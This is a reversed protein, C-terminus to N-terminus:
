SRSVENVGKTIQMQIQIVEILRSFLERAFATWERPHPEIWSDSADPIEAELIESQQVVM